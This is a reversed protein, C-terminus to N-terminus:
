RRSWRYEFVSEGNINMAKLLVRPKRDSDWDIEILGFNEGAYPGAVRWRNQAGPYTSNFHTLGSSTFDLLEFEGVSYRSIEAFHVNGSLLVTNGPSIDRISDILRQRELPYNGWEDMGKADAVVQGSSVLLRLEAPQALQQELWSWQAAGLVTADPDSNAAYKGLSGKADPPRPALTQPTKFTRTDLLIVQLRRGAPGFLNVDYIGERQRRPSDAPEGLFDLFIQKSERKLPFEAGAQYHGYDHNDWTALLPVRSVLHQWDPNDALVQWERRLSEPTVDYPQKKEIDYDAYITDGLSLYLDPKLAAIQRFIPQPVSQFACSGFAIRNLPRQDDGPTAVPMGALGLGLLSGSQLILRRKRDM